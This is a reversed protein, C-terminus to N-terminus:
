TSYRYYQCSGEFLPVNGRLADLYSFLYRAFCLVPCIWPADPNAYVHWSDFEYGTKNGKSKAFQFVLADDKFCIHNIKAGICNEACKMFCWDLVLFIHCFIYEKDSVQLSMVSKGELIILGLHQKAAQTTRKMGEMLNNTSLVYQEPREVGASKYLYLISSHIASFTSFSQYLSISVKGTQIDVMEETNEEDSGILALYNEAVRRDVQVNSTKTRMFDRVEVYTIAGEGDIKIHSNHPQGNVAPKINKLAALMYFQVNSGRLGRSTNSKDINNRAQLEECHVNTICEPKHDLLYHAFLFLKEHYTRKSADSVFGKKVDEASVRAHATFSLATTAAAAIATAAAFAARGNTGATNKTCGGVGASDVPSTFMSTVGAADVADIRSSALFIVQFASSLLKM